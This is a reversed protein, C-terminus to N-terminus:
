RRSGTNGQNFELNAFYVSWFVSLAALMVSLPVSANQLDGDYGWSFLWMFFFLICPLACAFNYLVLRFISPQERAVIGWFSEQVDSDEVMKLQCKPFLELLDRASKNFDSCVHYFHFISRPNYCAYFRDYFQHRGIPPIFDMPDPKYGYHRHLRRDPYEERRPEYRHSEYKDCQQSTRLNLLKM